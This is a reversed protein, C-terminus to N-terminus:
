LNCAFQAIYVVQVVNLLLLQAVAVVTSDTHAHAFGGALLYGNLGDGLGFHTPWLGHSTLDIDQFRQVMGVNDLEVVHTLAMAVQMQDRFEARASLEKVADNCTTVIALGVRSHQHELDTVGDLVAVVAVNTM